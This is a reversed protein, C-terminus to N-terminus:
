KRRNELCFIPAPTGETTVYLDGSRDDIALAERQKLVGSGPKPLTIKLPDKKLAEPWKQDFARIFYYADQYTLVVLAEGEQTLDMATPQSRYKGYWDKFDAQHPPTITTVESVPRATYIEEPSDDMLALEYLIPPDTRKTLLLIQNQRTDVAVAECDRPGDSYRFKIQRKVQISKITRGSTVALSPEKVIYLSCFDRKARNDGVDAIILYPQGKFYFSALDEWDRNETQVVRFRGVLQGSTRVAYLEPLNGSDSIVWLVDYNQLSVALGSAEQIIPDVIAGVQKAKYFPSNKLYKSIQNAAGLSSWCIVILGILVILIKQLNNDM